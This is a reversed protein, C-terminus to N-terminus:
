GIYDAQTFSQKNNRHQPYPTAQGHGAPALRRARQARIFFCYASMQLRGLFYVASPQYFARQTGGVASFIILM